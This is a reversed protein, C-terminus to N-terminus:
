TCFSWVGGSRRRCARFVEFLEISHIGVRAPGPDYISLYSNNLKRELAVGVVAHGIGYSQQDMYLVGYDCCLVPQIPTHLIARVRDEFSWDEFTSALEFRARLNIGLTKLFDTLDEEKVRLGWDFSDTAVRTNRILGSLSEDNPPVTVGFHEAIVRRDVGPYGGIHLVSEFCTALCLFKESIQATM